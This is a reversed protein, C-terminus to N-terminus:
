TGAMGESSAAQLRQLGFVPRTSPTTESEHCGVESVSQEKRISESSILRDITTAGHTLSIQSDLEKSTVLTTTVPYIAQLIVESRRNLSAVNQAADAQSRQQEHRPEYKPSDPLPWRQIELIPGDRLTKTTLRSPDALLSSPIILIHNRCCLTTLTNNPAV